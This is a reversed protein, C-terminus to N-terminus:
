PSGLSTAGGTRELGRGVPPEAMRQLSAGRRCDEQGLSVTAAHDAEPQFTLDVTEQSVPKLGDEFLAAQVLVAWWWPM